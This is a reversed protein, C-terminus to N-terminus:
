SRQKTLVLVQSWSWVIQWGEENKSSLSSRHFHDEGVGNQRLLEFAESFRALIAEVGFCYKRSGQHSRSGSSITSYLIIAFKLDRCLGNDAM